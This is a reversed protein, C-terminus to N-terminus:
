GDNKVRLKEIEEKPIKKGGFDVAFIKKNRIMVYVNNKSCKFIEAVEKVTYFEDRLM